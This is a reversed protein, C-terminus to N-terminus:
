PKRDDSDPKWIYPKRQEYLALRAQMDAREKEGVGEFSMAQKQFKIAQDFQGAAAHSAALIDIANRDSWSALECAKAALKVAEAANRLEAEPCTALARALGTLARTSNPALELARRRDALAEQHRQAITLYEARLLYPEPLKPALRIVESLDANFAFYEEKLAYAAARTQLVQAKTEPAMKLKATANLL